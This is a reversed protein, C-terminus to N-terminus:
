RPLVAQNGFIVDRLILTGKESAEPIRWFYHDQNKLEFFRWGMGEEESLIPSCVFFHNL